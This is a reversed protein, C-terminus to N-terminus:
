GGITVGYRSSLTQLMPFALIGASMQGAVRVAFEDLSIQRFLLMAFSM